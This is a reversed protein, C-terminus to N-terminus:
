LFDKKGSEFAEVACKQIHEVRDSKIGLYHQIEEETIKESEGSLWMRAQNPKMGTVVKYPSMKLARHYSSNPVWAAMTLM